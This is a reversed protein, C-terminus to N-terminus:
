APRDMKMEVLERFDKDHISKIGFFFNYDVGCTDVWLRIWEPRVTKVDGDRIQKVLTSMRVVPAKKKLNPFTLRGLNSQTICGHNVPKGNKENKVKQRANQLKIADEIRM